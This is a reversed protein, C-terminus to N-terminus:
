AQIKLNAFAELLNRRGHPRDPNRMPGMNLGWHQHAKCGGRLYPLTWQGRAKQTRRHKVTKTTCCIPM